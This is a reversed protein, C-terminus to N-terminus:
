HRRDEVWRNWPAPDEVLGENNPAPFPSLFEFYTEYVERLAEEGKTELIRHYGRWHAGQDSPLDTAAYAQAGNIVKRLFHEWSRYPFHRIELARVRGPGVGTVDHNGQEVTCGKKYRFAVKPLAGPEKMRWTMSQFPNSIDERDLGCRFHNFLTAELVNVDSPTQHCVHALSDTAYWIEDADFPIIWEAGGSAAENAMRTMKQSQYYGVEADIGIIVKCTSGFDRQARELEAMTNDTSLNDYILISDLGEGVMHQILPYVVDEEDRVMCIGWIQGM